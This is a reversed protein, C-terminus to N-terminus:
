SYHKLLPWLAPLSQGKLGVCLYIPIGDEDPMGLPNPYTALLRVSRYRRELRARKGNISLLVNGDYGRPGWLFYQNHGSLAPPLRYQSGFFDIAAAEGYNSTLIATRERFSAPVTEYTAGVVKALGPWGHMDAYEQPLLGTKRHESPPTSLHLYRVYAAYQSEPLVPMFLPLTVLGAVVASAVIAPRLRLTRMTWIELAVAGVAFLSPYVDEIYYDKGHLALMMAVLAIYTWALWRIEQRIAAYAVGAIWVLSLLANNNQLQRALFELPSLAVNKGNAANQLVEIMPFGHFAQWLLNPLAISGALLMGYLFWVSRLVRRQPTALLGILAAVALFTVSYKSESCVGIAGGVVMWWRPTGGATIRIIGYVILPWLFLGPTDTSLAVGATGLATCVGALLVAFPGGGLEIVTLCTLYIGAAAFISSILRLAVLSTGFIQSLAALLPVIPPQDVYGFAPHRGCIIFYLEDRFFGYHPEGFLHLAFAV